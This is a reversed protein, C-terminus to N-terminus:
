KEDVSKNNEKMKLLTLEREIPLLDIKSSIDFIKGNITVTALKM